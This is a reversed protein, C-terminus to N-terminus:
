RRGGRRGSGGRWAENEHPRVRTLLGRNLRKKKYGVDLPALGQLEIKFSCGSQVM